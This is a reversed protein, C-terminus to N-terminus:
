DNFIRVTYRPHTLGRVVQNVQDAPIFDQYLLDHDSDYERRHEVMVTERGTRASQLTFGIDAADDYVQGMRLDVLDSAEAVFMMKSDSNVFTFRDTSITPPHLLATMDIGGKTQIAEM